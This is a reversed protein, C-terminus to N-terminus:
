ATEDRLLRNFLTSRKLLSIDIDDLSMDLTLKFTGFQTSAQGECSFTDKPPTLVGGMRGGSTQMGTIVDVLTKTPNVAVQVSAGQRVSMGMAEQRTTRV